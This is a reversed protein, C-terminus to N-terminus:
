EEGEMKSWDISVLLTGDKLGIDHYDVYLRAARILWQKLDNLNPQTDNYVSVEIETKFRYLNKDKVSEFLIQNCADALDNGHIFLLGDDENLSWGSGTFVQLNNDSILFRPNEPTGKPILSLIPIKSL